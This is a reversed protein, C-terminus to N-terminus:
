HLLRILFSICCLGKCAIKIKKFMLKYSCGSCFFLDFAVHHNICSCLCALM